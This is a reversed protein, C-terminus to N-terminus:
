ISPKDSHEVIKLKHADILNSIVHMQEAIKSIHLYSWASDALYHGPIEDEADKIIYDNTLGLNMNKTTSYLGIYLDAIDDFRLQIDLVEKSPLRVSLTGLKSGSTHVQLSAMQNLRKANNHIRVAMEIAQDNNLIGDFDERNLSIWQSNLEKVTLCKPPSSRNVFLVIAIVIFAALIVGSGMLLWMNRQWFSEEGAQKLENEDNMDTQEAIPESPRKLAIGLTIAVVLSLFLGVLIIMSAVPRAKVLQAIPYFPTNALKGILGPERISPEHILTYQSAPQPVFTHQSSQQPTSVDENRSLIAVVIIAFIILILSGTIVLFSLSLSANLLSLRKFKRTMRLALHFRFNPKSCSGLVGTAM